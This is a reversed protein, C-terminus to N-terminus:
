ISTRVFLCLWGKKEGRERVVGECKKGEVNGAGIKAARLTGSEWSLLQTSLM